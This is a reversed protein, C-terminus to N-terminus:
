YEVLFKYDKICNYICLHERCQDLNRSLLSITLLRCANAFAYCFGKLFYSNEWHRQNVQSSLNHFVMVHKLFNFLAHYLEYEFHNSIELIFLLLHRVHLNLESCCPTMLPVRAFEIVIILHFHFQLHDCSLFGYKMKLFLFKM